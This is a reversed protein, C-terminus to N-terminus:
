IAYKSSIPLFISNGEDPKLIIFSSIIGQYGRDIEDFEFTFVGEAETLGGGLDEGSVSCIEISEIAGVAMKDDGTIGGFRDEAFLFQDFFDFMEVDAPVEVFEAFSPRIGETFRPTDIANFGLGFKVTGMNLRNQSTAIAFFYEDQNGVSEAVFDGTFKGFDDFM